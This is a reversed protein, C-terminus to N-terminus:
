PIRLQQGPFILWPHRLNNAAIIASSTTGFRFAISWVTDGPKVTYLRARPVPRHLGGPCILLRQGAFIRSPHIIRNQLSIAHASTGFRRAISFLTDGPRVTYVVCQAPRCNPIVLTQGFFIHNIDRISNARAISGVTTGFRRAISFLTDGFRVQYVCTGPPSPLVKPPRYPQSHVVWDFNGYPLGIMPLLLFCGVVVLFVLPFKVRTPM